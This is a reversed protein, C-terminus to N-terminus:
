KREELFALLSLMQRAYEQKGNVHAQKYAWANNEYDSENSKNLEKLDEEIIEKLRTLVIHSNRIVKEVSETRDKALGKLWRLNLKPQM